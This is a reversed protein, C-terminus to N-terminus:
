TCVAQEYTALTELAAREWSFHAARALGLRRLEARVEASGLVATIADAIAETSLPDVLRAAGGAIEPLCAVNSAIVPTGCAMAEVVPLGFGEWLSPFVMCAAGNYLDPLDAPDLHGLRHMRHGLGLRQVTQDIGDCGFVLRGALVLEVEGQGRTALDFAEILRVINKNSHLKGVYLVYGPTLGHRAQLRSAVAASDLPRFTSDVGHYVTRLRAEPIGFVSIMEQKVFDSVCLTVKSRALGRRLLPNLRARVAGSYFQPHTLTVAGHMTFVFARPCIPPPTFTAHLLQVGSRLIALPLSASMSVWRTRPWLVHRVINPQPPGMADAAAQDLCWVHYENVTDVAALARLLQREYTEPGAASRGLMVPFLGLKLM